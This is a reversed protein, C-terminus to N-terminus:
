KHFSIESSLAAGSSVKKAVDLHGVYNLSSMSVSSPTSPTELEESKTRFNSNHVMALESDVDLESFSSQPRGFQYLDAPSSESVSM